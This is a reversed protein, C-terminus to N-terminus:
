PRANWDRLLHDTMEASELNMHSHVSGIVLDLEALLIVQVQAGQSVGDPIVAEVQYVGIRGPALASSSFWRM